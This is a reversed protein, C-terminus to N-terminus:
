GEDEGEDEGGEDDEGDQLIVIKDHFGVVFFM